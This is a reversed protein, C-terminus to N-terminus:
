CPRSYFHTPRRWLRLALIRFRCECREAGRLDARVGFAQRGSCDAPDSSCCCQGLFNKTARRHCSHPQLCVPIHAPSCPCPYIIANVYESETVSFPSIAAKCTVAESCCTAIASTEM